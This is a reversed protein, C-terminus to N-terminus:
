ASQRPAYVKEVPLGVSDRVLSDGRPKRLYRKDAAFGDDGDGGGGGLADSSGGAAACIGAGNRLPSPPVGSPLSGPLECLRNANTNTNAVGGATRSHPAALIHPQVQFSSCCTAFLFAAQVVMWSASCSITPRIRGAKLTPIVAM